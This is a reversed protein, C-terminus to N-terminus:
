IKSIHYIREQDMKHFGVTIEVYGYLTTLCFCLFFCLLTLSRVTPLIIGCSKMKKGNWENWSDVFHDDTTIGIKKKLFCGKWFRGDEPYVSAWARSGGCLRCKHSDTLM